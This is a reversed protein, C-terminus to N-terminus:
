HGDVARFAGRGLDALRALLDDRASEPIEVLLIERDDEGYSAQLVRGQVRAVLRRAEGDRALPGVLRLRAMAVVEATGAAELSGRAADRYARALGGKGLKTGGFYRVVVVMAQSVGARRLAQLIPLGATGAPEGADDHREREGGPDHLRLAWVHHTADRFERRLEDRLLRAQPEDKIPFACAIFRSGHVRLVFRAPVAVSRLPV